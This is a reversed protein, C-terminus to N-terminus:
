VLQQADLAVDEEISFSRKEQGIESRSIVTKKFRAKLMCRLKGM